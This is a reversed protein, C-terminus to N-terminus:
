NMTLKYKLDHHIEIRYFVPVESAESTNQKVKYLLIGFRYDVSNKLSLRTCM